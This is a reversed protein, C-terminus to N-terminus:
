ETDGQPDRGAPGAVDTSAGGDVQLPDTTENATARAAALTSAPNNEATRERWPSPGLPTDSSGQHWAQTDAAAEKSGLGTVEFGCGCSFYWGGTRPGHSCRGSRCPGNPSAPEAEWDIPVSLLGAKELAILADTQNDAEGAWAGDRAKWWDIPRSGWEPEFGWAKDIVADTMLRLVDIASVAQGSAAGAGGPTRDSGVSM